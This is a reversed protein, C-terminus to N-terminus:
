NRFFPQRGMAYTSLPIGGAQKYAENQDYDVDYYIGSQNAISANSRSKPRPVHFNRGLLDAKDEEDSSSSNDFHRMGHISAARGALQAQLNLRPMPVPPLTGGHHHHQLTGAMSLSPYGFMASSPRTPAPLGPEPAYHNAQAM